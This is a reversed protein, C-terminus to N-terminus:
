WCSNISYRLVGFTLMYAGWIFLWWFVLVFTPRYKLGNDFHLFFIHLLTIKLTDVSILVGGWTNKLRLSALQGSNHFVNPTKSATLYYFPIKSCSCKKKTKNCEEKKLYLYYTHFVGSVFTTRYILGGTHLGM